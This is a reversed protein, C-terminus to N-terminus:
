QCSTENNDEVETSGAGDAFITSPRGNLFQAALPSDDDVASGLERNVSCLQSLCEASRGVSPMKRCQSGILLCVSGALIRKTLLPFKTFIHHRFASRFYRRYIKEYNKWRSLAAISTGAFM